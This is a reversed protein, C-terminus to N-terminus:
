WIASKVIYKWDGKTSLVPQSLDKQSQLHYLKRAFNTLLMRIVIAARGKLSHGLPAAARLLKDLRAYEYQMLQQYNAGFHKNVFAGETVHFRRMDDRPLFITGTREYDAVVYQCKNILYIASTMAKMCAKDKEDSESLVAMVLAGQPNAAVRCYDMLEAFHEFVHVKLMNRGAQIMMELDALDLQYHQVADALAIVDPDDSEDHGMLCLHLDTELLDLTTLKRNKSLSSKYVISYIRYEFAFVAAIPLSYKDPLLWFGPIVHNIKKDVIRQCQQYAARVVPSADRM